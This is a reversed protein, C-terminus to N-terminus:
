RILITRRESTGFRKEFEEADETHIIVPVATAGHDRMWCFRHRGNGFGVGGWPNLGVESMEVPEEASALWEGFAAYRRGIGGEGGPGIYVPDKRFAAELKAVDVWFPMAEGERINYERGRPVKWNVIQKAQLDEVLTIWHRM